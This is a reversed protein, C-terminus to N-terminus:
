IIGRCFFPGQKLARCTWSCSFAPRAQLEYPINHARVTTASDPLSTALECATQEATQGNEGAKKGDALDSVEDVRGLAFPHKVDADVPLAHHTLRAQLNDVFTKVLGTAREANLVLTMDTTIIVQV